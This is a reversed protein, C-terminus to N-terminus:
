FEYEIQFRLTRDPTHATTGLLYGLNYSIGRENRLPFRGLVVPGIRHIQQDHAAWFQHRTGFSGFAQLGFELPQRYRYKVQAQYQIQTSDFNRSRVHRDLLLNLNGEFNGLDKQLLPGIRIGQGERSDRPFETELAIGVDVPWENPEALAVVNEWEVADYGSGRKATQRYKVAIESFWNNTIGMGIGLGADRQNGTTRGASGTGGYWDIEREGQTVTPVYLYTSPDVAWAPMGILLRSIGLLGLAAAGHTSGRRPTRTCGARRRPWIWAARAAQSGRSLAAIM